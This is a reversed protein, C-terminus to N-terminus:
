SSTRSKGPWIHSDMSYMEKSSTGAERATDQMNPEDLKSLKRSLLCTATYNTDQPTNGGPSTFLLNSSSDFLFLQPGPIADQLQLLLLSSRRIGPMCKGCPFYCPHPSPRYIYKRWYNSVFMTYDCVNRKWDM